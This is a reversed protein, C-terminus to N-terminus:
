RRWATSLPRSACRAAPTTAWGSRPCASPWPRGRGGSSGGPSLGAAWPNRTEGHLSSRTHLRLSLDPLNTHGLPIAGAERLRQVLPSDLPAVAGSLAPVGHTTAHGAVDLNGKVTFPVGALPGPEEGSARRRDIEKAARRAEEEFVETVANVRPNVKRIRALHSDVAQLATFRGRAIEGALEAAGLQWPQAGAPASGGGSPAAAPPAPPRGGPDPGAQRARRVLRLVHDAVDEPWGRVKEGVRDWDKAYLARSVEEYGELNGAMAGMFRDAAEIWRRPSGEGREGRLAAEVLRRITGSAKQPQRELWEWHRPLLSVEGSTVGIRPRGPGQRPQPPLARELVEQVTGRFDFDVQKGTQDEFILLPDQGGRDLWARTGALMEKLNGAAIRKFGAFATYQNETEM